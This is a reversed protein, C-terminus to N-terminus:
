LQDTFDRILRFVNEYNTYLLNEARDQVDHYYGQGGLSYIFIAPVGKESFFYHDSNAAKGRIKVEPVYKKQNNISSMLDYKQKNAEGNVIMIGNEANGMIDINM